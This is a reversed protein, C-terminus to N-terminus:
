QEPIRLAGDAGARATRPRGQPSAADLADPQQGTARLGTHNGPPLTELAHLTGSQSLGLGGIVVAIRKGGAHSWPRAYIDMPRRGDDSRVPLDGWRSAELASDDPLHAVQQPQALTEEGPDRIVIVKPGGESIRGESMDPQGADQEPAPASGKDNSYIIQVGHDNKPQAAAAVSGTTRTDAPPSAAALAIPATKPLTDRETFAWANLAIVASFVALAAVPFAPAPAAGRRTRPRAGKRAPPNEAPRDSLHM